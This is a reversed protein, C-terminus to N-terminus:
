SDIKKTVIATATRTEVRTIPTVTETCWGNPTLYYQGYKTYYPLVIRRWHEILKCSPSPCIHCYCGHEFTYESIETPKKCYPSRFKRGGKYCENLSECWAVGIPTRCVKANVTSLTICLLIVLTSLLNKLQM